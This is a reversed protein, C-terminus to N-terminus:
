VGLAKWVVWVSGSSGGAFYVSIAKIALGGPVSEFEHAAGQEPGRNLDLGLGYSVPRVLGTALLCGFLSFYAVLWCDEWEFLRHNHM